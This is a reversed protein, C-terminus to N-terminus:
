CELLATRPLLPVDLWEASHADQLAGTDNLEHRTPLRGAVVSHARCTSLLCM